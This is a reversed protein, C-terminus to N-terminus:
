PANPKEKALSIVSRHISKSRRDLCFTELWVTEPIPGSCAITLRNEHLGRVPAIAHGLQKTQLEPGPRDLTADPHRAVTPDGNYVVVMAREADWVGVNRLALSLNFGTPTAEVSATEPLARVDRVRQAASVSLAAEANLLGFGLKTDPRDQGRSPLSPLSATNRLLQRLQDNTLEPFRSWVLAAVGGAFACAMCGGEFSTYNGNGALGWIKERPDQTGRQGAPAAFEVYDADAAMNSAEGRRNASGVACVAESAVPFFAVRRGRNDATGSFILCGAEYAEDIAERLAPNEEPWGFDTGQYFLPVDSDPARNLYGHPMILVRAGHAVAYRVALHWSGHNTYSVRLIMISCEPAVAAVEGAVFVHHNMYYGSNAQPGSYELSGDNDAFDWGHRDERGAADQLTPTPNVWLHGEMSPHHRYGLDIVAVIWAKSGRHQRHAQPVRLQELPWDYPAIGAPIGPYQAPPSQAHGSAVFSVVTFGWFALMSYYQGVTM